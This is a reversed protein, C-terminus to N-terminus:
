EAGVRVALGLAASFVTPLHITTGYIERTLDM